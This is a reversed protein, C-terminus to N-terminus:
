PACGTAPADDTTPAIKSVARMLSVAFSRDITGATRTRYSTPRGPSLNPATKVARLGKGSLAILGWTEPLEGPKVIARDSVVVWWHTVLPPKDPHFPDQGTFQGAKTLDKLERLWDSRSVKVEHGHIAHGSSEWLDVAVFDATRRADFGANCRVHEACVYRQGGNGVLPSYRKHLLDLMSRETHKIPAPAGDDWLGDSM